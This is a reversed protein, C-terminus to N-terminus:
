ATRKWMYCTIYPQLNNHAGGGGTDNTAGDFDQYNSNATWDLRSGTPTTGGTLKLSHKHAPIQAVTLTHTKAGGTEEATDFETQGTDVGVPVRGSGWAVWTGGLFTSPNTNTVSMFISGIPFMELKTASILNDIYTKVAKQSPFKIDSTGLATNTDKNASNEPTFGLNDQKGTELNYLRTEDEEFRTAVSDFM